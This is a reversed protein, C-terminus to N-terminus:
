GWRVHEPGPAAITYPDPARSMALAAKVAPRAAVTKLWATVRPAATANLVDAMLRPLYNVYSFVAIDALSYGPGALWGSRALDTEMKGILDKLRGRSRDLTEADFGALASTWLDRREKSKITSVANAFDLNRGERATEGYADWALDSVCAAIYDDVFKQWVRAEWRGLPDSPMLPVEPFAEDLYECIYSSEFYAEGDRVLVPTEGTENLKLFEPTHQEFALVDVYRSNFELGKEKLTILVRACAANPEWHYLELM